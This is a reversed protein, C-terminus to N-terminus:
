CASDPPIKRPVYMSYRTKIEDYTGSASRAAITPLTTTANNMLEAVQTTLKAVRTIQAMGLARLPWMITQPMQNEFVDGTLAYLQQHWGEVPMGLSPEYQSLRHAVILRSNSKALLVYGHHTSDRTQLLEANLDEHTKIAVTPDNRDSSKFAGMVSDLPPDLDRRLMYYEQYNTPALASTSRRIPPPSPLGGGIPQGTGPTAPDAPTAPAGPTAAPNM